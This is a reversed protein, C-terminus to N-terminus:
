TAALPPEDKPEQTARELAQAQSAFDEAMALLKRRADDDTAAAALRLAMGQLERLRTAESM